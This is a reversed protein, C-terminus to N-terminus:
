QGDNTGGRGALLACELGEDLYRSVARDRGEVAMDIESRANAGRESLDDGLFEVHGKRADDHHQAVGRADGILARGDGALGDLDRGNGQAVGGCLGAMEQDRAGGFPEFERDVVEGDLVAQDAPAVIAADAIAFQDGAFGDAEFKDSLTSTM